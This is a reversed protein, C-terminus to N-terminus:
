FLHKGNWESLLYSTNGGVSTYSGGVMLKDNYTQLSIVHGNIEGGVQEWTQTYSSIVNCCFLTSVLLKKM